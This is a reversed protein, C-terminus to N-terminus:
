LNIMKEIFAIEESSFNYKKYLQQDIEPITVSWDIDNYITDFDPLYYLFKYPTMLVIGKAFNTSLYKKCNLAKDLADSDCIAMKTRGFSEDKDLVEINNSNNFGENPYASSIIVKYRDSPARDLATTFIYFWKAKGGSGAKDNTLVKTYGLPAPQKRDKVYLVSQKNYQVFNSECVKKVASFNFTDAVDILKEAISIFETIVPLVKDTRKIEMNQYLITDTTVGQDYFAVCVDGPIRRVADGFVSDENPIHKETQRSSGNYIRLSILHKNLINLTGRQYEKAPYILCTRTGLKLALEQFYPYIDVTNNNNGETAEKRIEQYPPNGVVIDFKMREGENLTLGWTAPTTLKNKLRDMDSKMRDILHPLYIANVKAGTYGALTRRTISQAMKTKCLVFINNKLVDNWLGQLTEFSQDTENGTLKFMYLSYAMYLPYLGSKSNLELVKVGSNLLIDATAQTEIFRPEELEKRYNEDYFNYGGLTSGLHMNVVRWPTLVTEKDPNKFKSIIEVIKAARITPPYEDAAKALKRIRLGAGVIVDEDYFRLIDTFLEKRLGRPMFEEWSEDDVIEVFDKLKIIKTIDADAGYFLLPLRISVARLLDFLKQQEKKAEKYKELAAQEEPTLEKGKRQKTQAREARRHEEETLGQNNILVSNERQGKKKPVVVDSLKRLIERDEASRTIGAESLYVSNDDFGSNIADDVSIRKIQRMMEPVDYFHMETGDVSIVPCFNIFEALQARYQEEQRPTRKESKQNSEAIVRLARDPAFDFVYCNEKRKGNIVAPSQVRFIAQMYNNVSTEASGSLMMIGTWEPVTVGTTLRGCSLTITRPNGKIAERVKDLAIDFPEEVDGDGAVNAIKYQRFFPHAQLMRSLAAAEKVGPVIWFTHAFMDRYEETSFPYNSTEDDNSILNLFSLVSDEWVFDGVAKGAPVPYYDKSIDGTWTRFFERFTFAMNATAFRYADKVKESVDFTLVNMTPLDAYPNREGPHNEERSLKKKQEDIYTWTFVNNGYDKRISYATGTLSLLKTNQKKLKKIVEEGENGKIGEHAEDVIILDWDLDFVANNKNYKGGVRASGRLDQVSAFYVFPIDQSVMDNLIKDNQSDMVDDYGEISENSKDIIRHDTGGFILEHDSLWSDKVAPRHTMVITKKFGIEKILQYATVTKGFRMKCDWLMNDDHKFINKTKEVCDAQEERLTITKHVTQKPANDRPIVSLGDKFAKIAKFVVSIDLSFWESDRGNDRFVEPRYGSNKLVDHIDNDIFDGKYATGDDLTIERVALECHLLEYEIMATRTYERIRDNAARQIEPCNAPLQAPSKISNLETKGVKVKGEHAEDHITFIYIVNYRATPKYVTSM